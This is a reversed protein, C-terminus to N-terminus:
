IEFRSAPIQYVYEVDPRATTREDNLVCILTCSNQAM